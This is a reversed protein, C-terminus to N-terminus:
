AQREVFAEGPREGARQTREVLADRQELPHPPLCTVRALLAEGAGPRQLRRLQLLLRRHDALGNEAGFRGGRAVELLLSPRVAATVCAALRGHRLDGGRRGPPPLPPFTMNNAFSSSCPHAPFELPSTSPPIGISSGVLSEPLGSITPM